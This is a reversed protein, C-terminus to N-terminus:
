FYNVYGFHLKSAERLDFKVDNRKGEAISFNLLGIKTELAIGIGGSVFTNNFNTNQFQTRTAGVDSFFYLYSNIGTLFRIEETLVVFQSAYISEENFGRLLKYGGIQFLENRFTNQSQFLGANVGSKFASRKGVPFYHAASIRLRAQYSSLKLSDYLSNFSYSPRFPDKLNSIDNNRTIKKLGVATVVNFENGSRPNYKYNTNVWEYEIGVSSSSVDINVPLKKTAKILNTDIGGPLLFTRQNQFFVKGSQNASLLYQIGLQGNLQLYTSDRKLLNFGFDIGFPSNFIFPQQYGLNLKPSQRQLQQWNLFITEASGLSNKLNLNVDGTLQAKQDVGAPPLFGVLFNIESNRRPALYLNLVAGTGLMSIDWRQQQQLFPLELVRKNINMLKGKNYVSGAPINLYRQLFQNRLKAKGFVRISDIHYLPGKDIILDAFVGVNSSNIATYHISDLRVTAFPYGNNENWILMREEQLKLESLDLKKNTYHMDNWGTELLIRRDIKDTNIKAWLYPKGLYLNIKMGSSDMSISDVSTAAYGKANLTAPLKYIFDTCITKNPFTAPFAKLVKASLTAQDNSSDKDVRNIILKYQGNTREVIALSLSIFCCISIALQYKNIFIKMSLVEFRDFSKM